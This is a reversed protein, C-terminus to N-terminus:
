FAYKVRVMGGRMVKRILGYRLADYCHDEADTDVDEPRTKSYCLVPLTRVLNRCTSFVILGPHGDSKLALRQHIAAKGALRADAGKASPKWKCGLKNMEGARGGGEVLGTDAFSSSDICGSLPEDNEIIEGDGLNIPIQRDMALVARGMEIANLGSAYLEQVIFIRDHIRDHAFWLVACPSAFGDDGGRWLDWEVPVAFPSCVHIRPDWEAFVAGEFVDWRGLLLSLPFPDTRVLSVLTNGQQHCM